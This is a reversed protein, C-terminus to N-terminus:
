SATPVFSITVVITTASAGINTVTIYISSTQPSDGNSGPVDPSCIWDLESSQLLYWDAIIGNETGIVVAQTFPRSLDANQTAATKYLEVRAPASVAIRMCQFAKAIQIITPYVQGVILAPTVLATTQVIPATTTTTSTSSSAVINTVTSGGAGSAMSSLTPPSLVRYQPAQGGRYYQRLNDPSVNIPPAPCRLNTNSRISYTTDPSVYPPPTLNTANSVPEPEYKTPDLPQTAEALTAM